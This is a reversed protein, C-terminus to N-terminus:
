FSHFTCKEWVGIGIAVIKTERIKSVQNTCKHGRLSIQKRWIRYKAYNRVVFEGTSRFVGFLEGVYYIGLVGDVCYCDGGRIFECNTIYIIYLTPIRSVSFNTLITVCNVYRNEVISVAEGSALEREVVLQYMRLYNTIEAMALCGEFARGFLYFRTFFVRLRVQSACRACASDKRVWESHKPFVGWWRFCM